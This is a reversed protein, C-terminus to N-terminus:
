KRQLRWEEINTFVLLPDLAGPKVASSYALLPDLQWLPIFPMQKILSQHIRRQLERVQAFDRHRMVDKMPSQIAEDVFKFINSDGGDRLPPGLLPWLCYAEDPFDYHYYALDYSQTREVDQRLQMPDCPLPELEIGTTKKVQACLDELAEKLTPDGEPYKLKLPGIARVAAQQSFTKAGDADYLDLSDKNQRNALAPNCAWSGAPFPGNLAKHIHVQDKLPGRFHDDLLKERNIAYALAKRLNADPLKGHNIALFYIRRNPAAPTPLPVEVHFNNAKQRLENVEKATLDLVLDLKGSCLEEVANTCLYFRIEQIRPLDRKGPRLGYSPNAVFFVCERNNDSSRTPDLRFPGSCVPNKAFEETDVAEAQHSPLIKFTTLSLPDLYGQHL